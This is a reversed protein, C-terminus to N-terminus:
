LLIHTGKAELFYSRLTTQRSEINMGEGAAAELFVIFAEVDREFEGHIDKLVGVLYDMRKWDYEFEFYYRKFHRFRRLERRCFM